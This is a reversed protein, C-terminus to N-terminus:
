NQLNISNITKEYVQFKLKRVNQLNICKRHERNEFKMKWSEIQKHVFKIALNIFMIVNLGNNEWIKM